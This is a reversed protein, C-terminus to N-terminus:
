REGASFRCALGVSLRLQDASPRSCMSYSCSALLPPQPDLVFEGVLSVRGRKIKFCPPGKEAKEEGITWDKTTKM